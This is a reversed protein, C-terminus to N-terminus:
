RRSNRPFRISVRSGKGINSFRLERGYVDSVVLDGRGRDNACVRITVNSGRGLRGRYARRGCTPDYATVYLSESSRNSLVIRNLEQSNADAAVWVVLLLWVLTQFFTKWM